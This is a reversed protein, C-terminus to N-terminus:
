LIKGVLPRSPRVRMAGDGAVLCMTRRGIENVAIRGDVNRFNFAKTQTVQADLTQTFVRALGALVVGVIRHELIGRRSGVNTAFGVGAALGKGPKGFMEAGRERLQLGVEVQHEAGAHVVHEEMARAVARTVVLPGTPLEVGADVHTRRVADPAISRVEHLIHLTALAEQLPSLGVVIEEHQQGHAVGPLLICALQEHLEADM